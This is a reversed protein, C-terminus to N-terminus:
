LTQFSEKKKKEDSTCITNVSRDILHWEFDGMQYISSINIRPSFQM